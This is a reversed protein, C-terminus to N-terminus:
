RSRRLGASTVAHGHAQAQRGAAEAERCGPPRAQSCAECSAEPAGGEAEGGEAQCRCAKAGGRELAESAPDVNGRLAVREPGDRGASVHRPAPDAEADTR